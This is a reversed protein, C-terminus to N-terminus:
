VFHFSKCHQFLSFEEKSPPPCIYAGWMCSFQATPAHSCLCPSPEALCHPVGNPKSGWPASTPSISYLFYFQCITLFSHRFDDKSFFQPVKLWISRRRQNPNRVRGGKLLWINVGNREAFCYGSPSQHKEGKKLLQLTLVSWTRVWGWSHPFRWCLCNKPFVLSRWPREVPRQRCLHVFWRLLPKLVLRKEDLLNREATSSGM